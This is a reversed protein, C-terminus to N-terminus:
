EVRIVAIMKHSEGPLLQVLNDAVNATEICVMSKWDEAGMDTMRKTKEIWPNWVVTSESGSKEITIRRNWVPDHLVCASKTSLHVQDTERGIRIPDNGLM